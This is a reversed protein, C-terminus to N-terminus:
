GQSYFLKASARFTNFDAVNWCVSHGDRLLYHIDNACTLDGTPATELWRMYNEFTQQHSAVFHLTPVNSLMGEIFYSPALGENIYGRDIMANRMNKLIRISPKFRGASAGNKATCNELHQRPYNVVKEGDSTWFCIGEVFTPEGTAPYSTFVKNAVCVLVDADRRSGNGPIFIAKKGAKVGAGFKKTLWALVQAKFENFSIGGPSSNAQYRAKEGDNLHTIDGYYVSTLCIVVDVDSDAYINTDNGYSGQLFIRYTWNYFPSNPDDLVGRITQYTSASQVQSGQHSWTVLQSEPIAM